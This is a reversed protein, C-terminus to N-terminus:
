KKPPKGGAQVPKKKETAMEPPAGHAAAPNGGVGDAQCRRVSDDAGNEVQAADIKSPPQM